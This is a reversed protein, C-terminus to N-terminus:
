RYARDCDLFTVFWSDPTAIGVPLRHYWIPVAQRRRFHCAGLAQELDRASATCEIYDVGCEQLVWCARRILWPLMGPANRPWLLDIIRGRIRGNKEDVRVVLHGAVQEEVLVLFCRYGDGPFDVCMFNLAASSREM